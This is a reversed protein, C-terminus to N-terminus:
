TGLRLAEHGRGSVALEVWSQEHASIICDAVAVGILQSRVKHGLQARAQLAPSSGIIFIDSALYSCSDIIIQVACRRIPWPEAWTSVGKSAM